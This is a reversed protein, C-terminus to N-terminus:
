SYPLLLLSASELQGVSRVIPIPTPRRRKDVDKSRQVENQETSPRYGCDPRESDTLVRM